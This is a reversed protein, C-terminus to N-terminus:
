EREYDEDGDDEEETLDALGEELYVTLVAFEGAAHEGELERALAYAADQADEEDVADVIGRVRALLEFAYRM